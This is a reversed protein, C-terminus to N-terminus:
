DSQCVAPEPTFDLRVRNGDINDVRAILRGSTLALAPADQPEYIDIEEEDFKWAYWKKAEKVTIFEKDLVYVDAETSVFFPEDVKHFMFM